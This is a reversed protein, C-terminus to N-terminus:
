LEFKALEAELDGKFRMPAVGVGQDDPTQFVAVRMGDKELNPLWVDVWEDIDLAVPKGDQWPGAACAEAFRRHPWVPFHASGEDDEAVVWGGSGSLGWLEGHSAVRKVCYEYRSMGPLALVSEFEKDHVEWAM